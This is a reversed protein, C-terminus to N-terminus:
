KSLLGQIARALNVIRQFAAIFDAANSSTVGWPFWNGNMEWGPELYFSTYGASVWAQLSGKIATDWAGSIIAQFDTDGVDGNITMPMGVVPIVGASPSGAANWSGIGWGAVNAAWTNVPWNPDIYSLMVQPSKSMAGVFSNWNSVFAAQNSANSDDPNGVYTGLKTPGNCVPPNSGGSSQAASCSASPYGSQACTWVWAGLGNDTVASPTGFSCLNTAPITTLTQSNSTGCAPAAPANTIAISIAGSFQGNGTGPGGFQMLYNGSSDFEQVRNNNYEVVWVNGQPDFALDIPWQFQGNGTGAAGFQFLFTGSPNFVQIRNNNRDAVWLNGTGPQFAMGWAFDFQGPGAGTSGFSFVTNGSSDLKKIVNNDAVWANGASDYAVALPFSFGSVTIIPTATSSIQYMMGNFNESVWYNGTPFQLAMDPGSVPFQSVYAGNPAFTEVRSNTQDVVTLNGSNDLRISYPWAGLQGNGTGLTGFQAVYNGSMDFEEVRSGGSDVVYIDETGGVPPTTACLGTFSLEVPTTTSQIAATGNNCINSVTSQMTDIRTGAGLPCEAATPSQTSTTTSTWTEGDLYTVGGSTCSNIAPPQYDNNYIGPVGGSALPVGNVTVPTWPGMPSTSIDYTSSVTPAPPGIWSSNTGLPSTAPATFTITQTERIIWTNCAPPVLFPDNACDQRTYYFQIPAMGAQNVVSVVTTAPAMMIGSNITQNTPVSINTISAPAGGGSPVIAGGESYISYGVDSVTPIATYNMPLICNAFTVGVPPNQLFSLFESQTAQPVFYDYTSSNSAVFLCGYYDFLVNGVAHDLRVGASISPIPATTNSAVEAQCHAADTNNTDFCPVAQANANQACAIQFLL